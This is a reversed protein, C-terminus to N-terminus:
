LDGIGMYYLNFLQKVELVYTITIATVQHGFDLGHFHPVSYVFTVNLM